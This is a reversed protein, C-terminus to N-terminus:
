FIIKTTDSYFTLADLRKSFTGIDGFKSLSVWIIEEDCLVHKLTTRDIKTLNLLLRYSTKAALWNQNQVIKEKEEKEQKLQEGVQQLAKIDADNQEIKQNLEKITM